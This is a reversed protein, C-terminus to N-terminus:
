DKVVNLIEQIYGEAEEPYVEKAAESFAKAAEDKGLKNFCASSYCYIVYEYDQAETNHEIAKNFVSLAENYKQLNYFSMGMFVLHECLGDYGKQAARHEEINYGIKLVMQHDKEMVYYYQLYKKLEINTPAIQLAKDAYDKMEKFFGNESFLRVASLYNDVALDNNKKVRFLEALYIYPRAYNPNCKIAENYASIAETTDGKMLFLGGMEQYFLQPKTSSSINEKLIRIAKNYEGKLGYATAYPLAINNFNIGLSQLSDLAYLMTDGDRQCSNLIDTMEDILLVDKNEGVKTDSCSSFLITIFLLIISSKHMINKM